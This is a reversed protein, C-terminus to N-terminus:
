CSKAYKGHKFNHHKSGFPMRERDIADKMNETQNGLSLHRPNCCPPNDCAHRVSLGEPIRGYALEYALRHAAKIKTRNKGNATDYNFYGYGFKHRAKAIWPWCKATGASRDVKEWFRETINRPPHSKNFGIARERAKDRNYCGCSKTRGNRLQSGLVTVVKGCNCVCIWAAKKQGSPSVKIGAFKRVRLRVFQKNTIDIRMSNSHLM